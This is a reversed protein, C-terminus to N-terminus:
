CHLVWLSHSMLQRAPPESAQTAMKRASSPTEGTPATAGRGRGSTDAVSENSLLTASEPMLMTRIGGWGGVTLWGGAAGAAGCGGGGTTVGAGGGATAVGAGGGAM